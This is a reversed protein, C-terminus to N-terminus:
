PHRAALRGAAIAKNWLPNLSFVGDPSGEFFRRSLIEIGAFLYPVVEREARRRVYGLADVAFDGIGDYGIASTTRQVLLLADLRAPDWARALRMLAPTRANLWFVDANVVFFAEGLHKLANKVGGGTDLLTEEHSLVIEVDRRQTLHEAMMPAKYHTNVVVRKVGAAVLRDIGHDILSRGCLPILPKPTHETIPRMRTGFGAALIMATDIMADGGSHAAARAPYSRDLWAKVPALVPHRFNGDLLRWLRPIHALYRPKGDRRCLRTFIGIVKCHRQAGLVAFSADFCPAISRDPFAACYRAYMAAVLDPAIERRSDELLSVLDYTVPGLVADQFDLLGCAALGDRGAIRMLNDVHYDRLVLSDPVRARWRSFRAGSISINRACRPSTPQGTIAPLYWDVLLAAENLLRTDDYPPLWPAHAADFRRHLAILVDIAMAYLAREDEGKALLRTFTGDGFDEILLLGTEEEAALIAPASFDLARLHRAVALYPRVDEQPPPADMLMTTTGGRALRCYRRFSADGPLRRASPMPGAAPRSSRRSRRTASLWAEARRCPRGLSPSPSLTAIRAKESQGAALAVQLHERPMLAGLREPWEILAIGDAFADEIGLEYADEPTEIRYLDFHWIAPGSAPQYIEVLTFTPSPVENNAPGVGM